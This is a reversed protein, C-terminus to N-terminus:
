TRWKKRRGSLHWSLNLLIMWCVEVCVEINSKKFIVVFYWDSKYWWSPNLFMFLTSNQTHCSQSCTGKSRKCFFYIRERCRILYSAFRTSRLGHLKVGCNLSVLYYVPRLWYQQRNWENVIALVLFSQTKSSDWWIVPFCKICCESVSCGVALHMYSFIELSYSTNSINEWYSHIICEDMPYFELIVV